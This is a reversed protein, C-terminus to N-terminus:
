PVVPKLGLLAELQRDYGYLDELFHVAGDETAVATGYLILVQLPKRLVVKTTTKSDIAANIKERTWAGPTDRLVQEALAVPDSVRICGHSFARRAQQFLRPAPTSHLYVNYTNPLMFAVLGLANDAGPRQRVRLQGAALLALNEATPALPTAEDGGGRVIELHKSAWRSPHARLEPLLERSLISYPVNWYPRFVVYKLDAAFVPTHTHPYEKGVIVDMRLMDAEFDEAAKLAFLRFQPINVIITGAGLPPLWRWRELTLEIQRVRQAMPVTLAAFTRKGLKGDAELGHLYQFRKLAAAMADDMVLDTSAGVEVPLVGLAVLWQRLTSMGAYFEGVKPAAGPLPPLAPLTLESALKRYRVLAQRLLRYHVYRPELETLVAATDARAALQELFAARDFVTEAMPIDFGAAHPDVRGFHLDSIFLLAASSLAVDFEAWQTSTAALEAGLVTLRQALEEGRYNAARLGADDAARLATILALAQATPARENSWLMAGNRRQYVDALATTIKASSPPVAQSSPSRYVMVESIANSVAAGVTPTVAGLLMVLWVCNM